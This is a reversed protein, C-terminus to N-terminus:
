EVSELPKVMEMYELKNSLVQVQDPTKGTSFITKWFESTKKGSFHTAAMSRDKWLPLNYLSAFFNKINSWLAEPFPTQFLSDKNYEIQNMLFYADIIKGLYPLIAMIIEEKSIRFAILHGDTIDTDRKDVIRQEIRNTGVEPKFKGIYFTEAFITLLKCVQSIELERPNMGDGSKFNM